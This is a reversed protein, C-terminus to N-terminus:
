RKGEIDIVAKMNTLFPRFGFKNFRQLVFWIKFFQFQNFKQKRIDGVDLGFHDQGTFRVSAKWGHDNVDLRLIEIKTAYVDHITIGMGNIKDLILSDFKPLLSLKIASTLNDLREHTFGKRTYDIFLGITEQMISTKKKSAYDSHLKERYATDLQPNNFASGRSLQFNRLMQNILYRHPGIFSFPISTVQMEEFLLQASQQVSLKDGRHVSGYVGAFRSQPNDFATLRTLTYPDVVNSIKNLGFERRLRDEPIDGYRMDDTSFDNFRRQTTFITLPFLANSM